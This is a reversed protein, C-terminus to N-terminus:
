PFNKSAGNDSHENGASGVPVAHAGHGDVDESATEDDVEADVDPATEVLIGLETIEDSREDAASDDTKDM